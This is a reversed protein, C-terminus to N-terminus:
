LNTHLDNTDKRKVTLTLLYELIQYDDAGVFNTQLLRERLRQRHGEHLNKISDNKEHTNRFNM